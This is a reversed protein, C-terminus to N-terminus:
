KINGPTHPLHNYWTRKRADYSTTSTSDSILSSDSRTFVRVLMSKRKESLSNKGWNVFECRFQETNHNRCNLINGDQFGIGVYNYEFDSGRMAIIFIDWYNQYWLPNHPEVDNPLRRTGKAFTFQMGIVLSLPRKLFNEVEGKAKATIGIVHKNAVTNTVAISFHFTLVLTATTAFVILFACMLASLMRISLLGCYKTPPKQPRQHLSM